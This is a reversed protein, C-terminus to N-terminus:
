IASCVTQMCLYTHTTLKYGYLMHCVGDLQSIWTFKHAFIVSFINIKLMNFVMLFCFFQFM